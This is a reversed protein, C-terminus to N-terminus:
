IETNSESQDNLEQNLNYDKLEDIKAPRLDPGEANVNDDVITDTAPQATGTNVNESPDLENTQRPESFNVNGIDSPVTYTYVTMPVYDLTTPKEIAVPEGNVKKLMQTTVNPKDETKDYVNGGLLPKTVPTPSNINGLIKDNGTAHPTTPGNLNGLPKNLSPLVVQQLDEKYLNTVSKVQRKAM